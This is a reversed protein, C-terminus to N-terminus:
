GLRRRVKDLPDEEEIDGQYTPTQSDMKLNDKGSSVNSPVMVTPIGYMGWIERRMTLGYVVGALADAVDKSGRPPHDVKATKTDKELSVLETQLHEHSPMRVRGDYVAAKLFDYPICPVLDMSQPGTVFGKQRLIQQSDTSQFTDFTVWRINLDMKRLTFLVDRIKGFLIESNKPPRIQLTGDIRIDPMFAPNETDTSIKKFSTVCGIALGASDGSIALDVHVFRPLDPKYFAGKRITLRTQVFDVVSQAFISPQDKRFSAGIKDTEVFFPHRALTSVGAIERLANIIDKQFDERYDEPISVVLARDEDDVEEEPKLIRPKRSLDGVFVTFWGKDAYSEPKIDWVRKDYVFITKDRSAEEIKVDTFQGPYKKSSVLCLIGPMKGREMFRTKRRRAISNYVAVAQDYTGQDVSAKSKEVVAMYNLEDILGGIVNQGIAATDSGSVPRVIIRHPFHLESELDKRFPFHTKFYPSSEVMSRYRDYDLGKSLQKTISQFIFLIESSPDLGFVKHPNRMCSLLYLQYVNTYLALTTKGSGIGGTLVAEVYQGNNLEEASDLVAPYIEGGKDLYDPSTLFERIGVPKHKYIAYERLPTEVDVGEERAKLQIVIHAYYKARENLDYIKQGAFWLKKGDDRGLKDVLFELTKAAFTDLKHNLKPPTSEKFILAM